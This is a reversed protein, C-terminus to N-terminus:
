MTADRVGITVLLPGASGPARSSFKSGSASLRWM